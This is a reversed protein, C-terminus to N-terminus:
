KKAAAYPYIMAGTQYQPPWLIPQVSGDRFQDLNGPAVHQFQTFL